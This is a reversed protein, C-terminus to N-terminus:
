HLKNVYVDMHSAKSLPLYCDYARPHKGEARAWMARRGRGMLRVRLKNKKLQDINHEKVIKKLRLLAADNTNTITFRYGSSPNRENTWRALVADSQKM